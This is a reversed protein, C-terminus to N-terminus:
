QRPKRRRDNEGSYHARKEAYMREEATKIFATMDIGKLKDTCQGTSVRYGEKSIINKVDEMSKLIDEEKKDFAFAVFEDGGIRYTDTTGWTNQVTTAVFKLMIDGAEHGKTNNLEHLGDADIYVCTITENQREQYELLRREYCFRNNMSTLGDSDREKVVHLFKERERIQERITADVDRFGMVINTEGDVGVARTFCAQHYTENGDGDVRKYTIPMVGDEPINKILSYFTADQLAREQDAVAIYRRVYLPLCISYDKIEMAIKLAEMITSRGTTRYLEMTRDQHILFVTHYERSLGDMLSQQFDRERADEIKTRIEEDKVGFGMIVIKIDDEEEPLVYKIECYENDQNLYERSYVSDKRLSWKIYERSLVLLMHEQQDKIVTDRVYSTVADDYDFVDTTERVVGNPNLTPFCPSMENKEIDVIFVATYEQSLNYITSAYKKNINERAIRERAEKGVEKLGVIIAKPEDDGVKAVVVQNYLYGFDKYKWRFNISLKSKENLLSLYRDSSFAEEILSIDEPHINKKIRNFIDELLAESYDIDGHAIGLTKEDLVKLFKENNQLNHYYLFMYDRGFVSLFDLNIANIDPKSETNSIVFHTNM